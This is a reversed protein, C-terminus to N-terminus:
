ITIFYTYFFPNFFCVTNTNDEEFLRQARVAAEDARTRSAAFFSDENLNLIGMIHINGTM